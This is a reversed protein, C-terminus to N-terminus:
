ILFGNRIVKERIKRTEQVLASYVSLEPALGRTSPPNIVFFLLPEKHLDGALPPYQGIRATWDDDSRVYRILWAGLGTRSASRRILSAHRPDLYFPTKGDRRNSVSGV